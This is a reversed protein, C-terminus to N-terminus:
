SDTIDGNGGRGKPLPVARPSMKRSFHTSKPALWRGPPNYAKSDPNGGGRLSTLKSKKRAL